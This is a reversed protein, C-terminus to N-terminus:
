HVLYTVVLAAVMLTSAVAQDVIRPAATESAAGDALRATVGAVLLTVCAKVSRM